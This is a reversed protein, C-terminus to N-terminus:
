KMSVACNKSWKKGSKPDQSTVLDKKKGKQDRRILTMSASFGRDSSIFEGSNLVNAIHGLMAQTMQLRNFYDDAPIHWTEGTNGSEKFHEKSGIQLALDYEKPDIAMDEMMSDMGETLAYVAEVGLDEEPKPDRLYDLTFTFKQDVVKGKKWKKPTGMKAINAQFLPKEYDTKAKNGQSDMKTVKVDPIDDDASRKTGRTTVAGGTQEEM